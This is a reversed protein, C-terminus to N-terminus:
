TTSSQSTVPEDLPDSEADMDLLVVKKGPIKAFTMELKILKYKTGDKPKRAFTYLDANDNTGKIPVKLRVETSNMKSWGDVLSAKGIEVTEGLLGKVGEQDKAINVANDIFKSRNIYREKEKNLLLAMCGVGIGCGSAIAILTPLRVRSVM